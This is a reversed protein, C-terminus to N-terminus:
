GEDELEREIDKAREETEAQLQAIQSAPAYNAVCRCSIVQEPGGARDGPYKMRKGGVSFFDDILVPEVRRHDKRTRSDRSSDWEKAMPPLEMQRVIEDQAKSSAMLVETRAIRNAKWPASETIYSGIARGVEREGAGEAVLPEMIEVVEEKATNAITTAEQLAFANFQELLIALTENEDKTEIPLEFAKASDVVMKTMSKATKGYLDVLIERVRDRYDAIAIAQVRGIGGRTYELASDKGLQRMARRLKPEVYAELLVRRRIVKASNRRRETETRAFV